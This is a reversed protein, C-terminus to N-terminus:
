DMDGEEDKYDNNEWELDNGEGKEYKEEWEEEEEKPEDHEKDAEKNYEAIAEKEINTLENDFEDTKKESGETDCEGKENLEKGIKDCAKEINKDRQKESYSDWLGKDELNHEFAEKDDFDKADFKCTDDKWDGGANDCLDQASVSNHSELHRLTNEITGSAENPITMNPTTANITLLVTALIVILCQKNIDVM